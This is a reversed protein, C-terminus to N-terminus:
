IRLVMLRKTIFRWHWTLQQFRLPRCQVNPHHPGRSIVRMQATVHVSCGGHLLAGGSMAISIGPNNCDPCAEPAPLRSSSSDVSAQPSRCAAARFPYYLRTVLPKRINGALTVVLPWVPLSEWDQQKYHKQHQTSFAFVHQQGFQRNFTQGRPGHLDARDFCAM